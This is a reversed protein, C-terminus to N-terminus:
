LIFDENSLIQKEIMEDRNIDNMREIISSHTYRLKKFKEQEIQLPTPKEITQQNLQQYEEFLHSFQTESIKPTLKPTKKPRTFTTPRKPQNTIVKFKRYNIKHSDWKV